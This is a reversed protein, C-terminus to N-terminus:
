LKAKARRQWRTNRKCRPCASSTEGSDSGPYLNPNPSWALSTFHFHLSNATLLNSPIAIQIGETVHDFPYRTTETSPNGPGKIAYHILINPWPESPRTRGALFMLPFLM